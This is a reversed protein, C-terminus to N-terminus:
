IKFLLERCVLQSNVLTASSNFEPRSYFLELYHPDSHSKFVQGRSKLGPVGVVRGCQRRVVEQSETELKLFTEKAAIRKKETFYLNLSEKDYM